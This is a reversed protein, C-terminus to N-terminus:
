HALDWHEPNDFEPDPVVPVVEVLEAIDCFEEPNEENWRQIESESHVEVSSSAVYYKEM